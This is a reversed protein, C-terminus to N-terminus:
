AAYVVNLNGHPPVYRWCLKVASETATSRELYKPVRYFGLQLTWTKLKFFVFLCVFLCVFFGDILCCNWTFATSSVNYSCSAVGAIQQVMEAAFMDRLILILKFYHEITTTCFTNKLNNAFDANQIKVAVTRCKCKSEKVKNSDNSSGRQLCCRQALGHFGTNM